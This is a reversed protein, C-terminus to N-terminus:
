KKEFKTKNYVFTQLYKSKSGKVFKGALKKNKKDFKISVMKKTSPAGEGYELKVPNNKKAAFATIKTKADIQLGDKYWSTLYLGNDQAKVKNIELSGSGTFHMGCNWFNGWCEMHQVSSKGALKIKFSKGMNQCIIQYDAGKFNKITLTNNNFNYSLGDINCVNARYKDVADPNAWVFRCNGYINKHRVLIMAPRKYFPNAAYYPRNKNSDNKYAKNWGTADDYPDYPTYEAYSSTAGFIMCYIDLASTSTVSSYATAFELYLDHTGTVNAADINIFSQTAYDDFSNTQKTLAYRGVVQGNESDLRITVTVSQNHPKAYRFIIGKLTQNDSGIQVDKYLAKDGNSVATLVSENMSKSMEATGHTQSYDDDCSGGKVTTETQTSGKRVEGVAKVSPVGALKGVPIIGTITLMAALMIAVSNRLMRGM